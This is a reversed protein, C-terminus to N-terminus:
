TVPCAAPILELHLVPANAPANAGQQTQLLRQTALLAHQGENAIAAELDCCLHLNGCSCALMGPLAHFAHPKGVFPRACTDDEALHRSESVLRTSSCGRHVQLSARYLLELPWATMWVAIQLCTSRSVKCKCSTELMIRHFSAGIMKRM